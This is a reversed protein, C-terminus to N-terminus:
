ASCPICRGIRTQQETDKVERHLFQAGNLLAYKSPKEGVSYMQRLTVPTTDKNAYQTILHDPLQTARTSSPSFTSTDPSPTTFPRHPTYSHTLSCPIRTPITTIIRRLSQIGHRFRAVSM